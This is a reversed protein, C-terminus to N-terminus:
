MGAHGRKWGDNSADDIRGVRAVSWKVVYEVELGIPKPCTMCDILAPDVRGEKESM